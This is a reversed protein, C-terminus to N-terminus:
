RVLDVMEEYYNYVENLGASHGQEWAISFLKDCKEPSVKALNFEEELDLKFVVRELRDTEAKWARRAELMADKTGHTAMTPYVSQNTYKGAEINARVDM